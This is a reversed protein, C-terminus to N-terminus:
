SVLMAAVRARSHVGLKMLVREAHRRATHISIGLAQAVEANSHGRAILHSVVVERETLQFRRHLEAATLPEAGVRDVSVLAMPRPGVTEAGLVTCRVLFLGAATRVEQDQPEGIMGPGPQRSWAAKTLGLRGARVCATELGEAGPMGCAVRLATNEYVVRGRADLLM